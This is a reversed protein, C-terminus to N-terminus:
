GHSFMCPVSWINPSYSGFSHVTFLCLHLWPARGGPLPSNTSDRLDKLACLWIFTWRHCPSPVLLLWLSLPTLTAGKVFKEFTLFFMLLGVSLQSPCCSVPPRTPERRDDLTLNLCSTSNGHCLLGSHEFLRPQRSVGQMALSNLKPCHSHLHSYGQTVSFHYFHTHWVSNELSVGGALTTLNLLPFVDLTALIPLCLRMRAAPTQMTHHSGVDAPARCGPVQGGFNAWYFHVNTNVLVSPEKCVGSLSNEEDGELITLNIITEECVLFFSGSLLTIGGVKWSFRCPSELILTNSESPVSQSLV